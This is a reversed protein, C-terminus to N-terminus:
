LIYFLELCKRCIHPDVYDITRFKDTENNLRNVYVLHCQIKNYIRNFKLKVVQFVYFANDHSEQLSQYIMTGSTSRNLGYRYTRNKKFSFRVCIYQRKCFVISIGLVYSQTSKKAGRRVTPVLSTALKVTIFHIIFVIFIM